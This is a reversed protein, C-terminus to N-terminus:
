ALPIPWEELAKKVLTGLHMDLYKDLTTSIKGKVEDELEKEYTSLFELGKKDIRYSFKPITEGAASVEKEEIVEIFKLDRLFELDKGAEESYPGWFYSDFAYTFPVGEERAFFIYKQLKTASEIVKHKSREAGEKILYLLCLINKTKESVPM